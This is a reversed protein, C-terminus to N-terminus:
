QSILDAIKADISELAEEPTYIGAIVNQCSTTFENLVSASDPWVVTQWYLEDNAVADKFKELCPHVEYEVGPVNMFNGLAAAWIAMGEESTLYDMFRYAEEKHAARTTVGIGVNAGGQLTPNGEFGPVAFADFSAEPNKQIFNPINWPGGLLMAAKGNAFMEEAQDSTLSLCSQRIYGPAVVDEYWAEMSPGYLESFTKSGDALGYEAEPDKSIENAAFLGLLLRGADASQAVLPEAGLDNLKGMAEVLEDWTQPVQAIGAQEFLETNYFMCGAWSDLSVAYIKDGISMTRKANSSLKEMVPLSSLDEAFNTEDIVEGFDPGYFFLDTPEDGNMLLMIKETYQETPPVYQIELELDPNAAEFGDKLGKLQEETYWSLLTITTRSAAEAAGEQAQEAEAGDAASSEAEDSANSETSDSVSGEAANETENAATGSGCGVLGAAMCICLLAAIVKKM